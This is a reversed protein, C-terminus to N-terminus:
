VPVFLLLMIIVHNVWAFDDLWHVFLHDSSHIFSKIYKYVVYTYTSAFVRGSKEDRRKLGFEIECFVGRM